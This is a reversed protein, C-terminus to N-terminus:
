DKSKVTNGDGDKTKKDNSIFDASDYNGIVFNAMKKAKQLTITVIKGNKKSFHSFDAIKQFIIM